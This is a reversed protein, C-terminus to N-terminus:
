VRRMWLGGLILGGGGAAAMWLAFAAPQWFYAGVTVAGVALGLWAIRPAGTWIGSLGYWLAVLLPIFAGVQAGSPPPLIAFLATIFATVALITLTYRRGFGAPMAGGKMRRGLGFSGVFGIVILAPWVAWWAPRFYVAAYGIMWIVGWLVLHPAAMADHYAAASRQGAQEIQRLTDAAEDRPITM